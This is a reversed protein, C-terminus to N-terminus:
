QHSIFYFDFNPIATFPCIEISSFALESRTLQLSSFQKPVCLKINWFCLQFLDHKQFSIILTLTSICVEM